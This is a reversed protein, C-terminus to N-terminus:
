SRARQLVRHRARRVHERRFPLAGRGCHRRTPQIHAGGTRPAGRAPSARPQARAPRYDHECWGITAQANVAIETDDFRQALELARGAWASAEESRAASECIGALNAYALALERGPPLPELLDVADRACREAETIRGPCWLFESLGRLADGEKLTDGLARRCGLADELAAIGEDYQDTLYCARSRHELLEAREGPALRDGFRLARAYQAAAERHAGLSAARAAAEPTFRLVADADGAAEAHHALRALDRAGGPADTLAVLAKRHLDITRNVPISEEVALRALEHRFAVAGPTSTLM